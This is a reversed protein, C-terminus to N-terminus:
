TRQPLLGAFIRRVRCDLREVLIACHVRARISLMHHPRGRSEVRRCSASSPPAVETSAATISFM